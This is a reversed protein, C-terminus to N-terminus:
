FPKKEDVATVSAAGISSLFSKVDEEAYGASHAPIWLAFKDNTIEKHLPKRFPRPLKSLLLLTAATCQGGFLVTLEFCIPVMAPWSFTPKGGINLPYSNMYPITSIQEHVGFQLFFATLTGCMGMFFTVYPIKSRKLGMDFELGHVPFPTFCDFGTYGKEHAAKAAKKIKEPTDFLGFVGKRTENYQYEFLRDLTNHLKPLIAGFVRDLIGELPQFLRDITALM